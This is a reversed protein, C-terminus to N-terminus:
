RVSFDGEQTNKQIKLSKRANKSVKRWVGWSSGKQSKKAIEPGSPGSVGTFPPEPRLSLRCFLQISLMFVPCWVSLGKSGVTETQSPHLAYCVAIGAKAEALEAQLSELQSAQDALEGSRAQVSCLRLAALVSWTNRAMKPALFM